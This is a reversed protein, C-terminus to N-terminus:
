GLGLSTHVGTLKEGRTQRAQVPLETPGGPARQTPNDAPSLQGDATTLPTQDPGVSRAPPQKIARLAYTSFELRFLIILPSHRARTSPNIDISRCSTCSACFLRQPTKTRQHKRIYIIITKTSRLSRTLLWYHLTSALWYVLLLKTCPTEFCFTNWMGCGCDFLHASFNMSGAPRHDTGNLTVIKVLCKKPFGVDQRTLATPYYPFHTAMAVLYWINAFASTAHQDSSTEVKYRACYRWSPESFIRFKMPEGLINTPQFIKTADSIFICSANRTMNSTSRHRTNIM